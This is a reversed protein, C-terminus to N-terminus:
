RAASLGVRDCPKRMLKDPQLTIVRWHEFGYDDHSISPNEVALQM